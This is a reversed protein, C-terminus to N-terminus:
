PNTRSNVDFLRLADQDFDAPLNALHRSKWFEYDIGEMGHVPNGVRNVRVVSTRQRMKMLQEKLKTDDKQRFSDEFVFVQATGLKQFHEQYHLFGHADASTAKKRKPRTPNKKSPIQKKNKSQTDTGPQTSTDDEESEPAEECENAAKTSWIPFQLVPPLQLADGALLFSVGGPGFIETCRHVIQGFTARGLMSSEDIAIIKVGAV